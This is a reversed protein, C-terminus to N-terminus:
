DGEMFLEWAQPFEQEFMAAVRPRLAPLEETAVQWVISWEVSFDEHVVVNRFAIIRPWPVDPHRSRLGPSLSRAAEGVLMVRHAVANRLIEDDGWRHLDVGHLWRAIADAAELIEALYLEERRM